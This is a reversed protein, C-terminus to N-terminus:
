IKNLEKIRLSVGYQVPPIVSFDNYEYEPRGGTYTQGQKELTLDYNLLLKALLLKIQNVALFRGPCAQSGLGFGLSDETAMGMKLNSQGIKDVRLREFRAGDFTNADVGFTDPDTAIAGTAAVTLTGKPVHNGSAKFTYPQTVIRNM